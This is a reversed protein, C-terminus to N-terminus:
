EGGKQAQASLMAPPTLRAWHTIQNHSPGFTLWRKGEKFDHHKEAIVSCQGWMFYTARDPKLWPDTYWLGGIVTEGVEPLGHEDVTFWQLGDPVGPAPHIYARQMPWWQKAHYERGILESELDVTRWTKGGSLLRDGLQVIDGDRLDIWMAVPGSDAQQIATRTNWASISEAKTACHAAVAGCKDCGVSYGIFTDHNTISDSGCFPCPKLEISM